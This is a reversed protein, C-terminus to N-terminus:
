NLDVGLSRCCHTNTHTNTHTCMFHSLHVPPPGSRHTHTHTHQTWLMWHGLLRRGAKHTIRLCQFLASVRSQNYVCVCVCVSAAAELHSTAMPLTHTHTHRANIYPFPTCTSLQHKCRFLFLPLSSQSM